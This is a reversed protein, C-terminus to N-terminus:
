LAGGFRIDQLIHRGDDTFYPMTAHECMDMLSNKTRHLRLHYRQAIVRNQNLTYPPGASFGCQIMTLILM